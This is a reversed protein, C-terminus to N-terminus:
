PTIVIGQATLVTQKATTWIIAEFREAKPLKDFYRRYNEAVELALASKGIGGYGDITIVFHRTTPLLLNRIQRLEAKRGVFREYDPRPLHHYPGLRSM